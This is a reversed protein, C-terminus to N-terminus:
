ALLTLYLSSLSWLRRTSGRRGRDQLNALRLFEEPEAESLRKLTVTDGSAVAKAIVGESLTECAASPLSAALACCILTACQLVAASRPAM